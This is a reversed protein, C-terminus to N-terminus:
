EAIKKYSYIKRLIDFAKEKSKAVQANYRAMYSLTAYRASQKKKIDDVVYVFNRIEEIGKRAETQASLAVSYSGAKKCIVDIPYSYKKRIEDRIINLDDLTFEDNMRTEIYLVGRYDEMKVRETEM